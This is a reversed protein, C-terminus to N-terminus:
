LHIRHAPHTLCSYFWESRSIDSEIKEMYQSFLTIDEPISLPEIMLNQGAVLSLPSLRYQIPTRWQGFVPPSIDCM